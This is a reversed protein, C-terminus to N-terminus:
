VKMFETDLGMCWQKNWSNFHTHCQASMIATLFHTWVIQINWSWRSIVGAGNGMIQLADEAMLLTSYTSKTERFLRLAVGHGPHCTEIHGDTQGRCDNLRSLTPASFERAHFTFIQSGPRVARVISWWQAVSISSYRQTSELSRNVADRRESKEEWKARNRGIEDKLYQKLVWSSPKVKIWVWKLTKWCTTRFSLYTQKRRKEYGITHELSSYVIEQRWPYPPTIGAGIEFDKKKGQPM